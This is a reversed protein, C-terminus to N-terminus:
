ARRRNERRTDDTGTLGQAPVGDVWVCAESSSDWLLHVEEGRWDTPIALDVRFWHTSWLPGFQEGVVAPRYIGHLAETYSIRGPASYVALAVPRRRSYVCGRLQAESAFAALRRRTIDPHGQM